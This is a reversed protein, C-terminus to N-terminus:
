KRAVDEVDKGLDRIARAPVGGVMTYPAVNDAVVSGAAIVSGRGVRVGPLVISGAGVWVFDELVIPRTTHKGHAAGDEAVVLGGTILKTGYSLTVRDGIVIECGECSQIVVRDNVTVGNGIRVNEPGAILVGECFQCGKGM